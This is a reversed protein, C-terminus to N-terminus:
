LLFIVSVPRIPCPWKPHAPCPSAEVPTKPSMDLYGTEMKQKEKKVQLFILSFSQTSIPLVKSRKLNLHEGKSLKNGKKETDDKCRLQHDVYDICAVVVVVIVVVIVVVVVVVIQVVVAHHHHHGWCRRVYINNRRANSPPEPLNTKPKSLLFIIEKTTEEDGLLRYRKVHFSESLEQLLLQDSGVMGEVAASFSAKCTSICSM